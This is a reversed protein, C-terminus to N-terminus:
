LTVLPLKRLCKGPPCQDQCDDETCFKNPGCETTSYCENTQYATIAIFLIYNSM